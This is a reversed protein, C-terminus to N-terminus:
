FRFIINTTYCMMKMLYEVYASESEKLLIFSINRLYNKIMLRPTIKQQAERMAQLILEHMEKRNKGESFGIARLYKHM